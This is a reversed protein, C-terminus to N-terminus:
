SSAEENYNNNNKKKDIRNVQQRNGTHQVEQEQARCRSNELSAQAQSDDGIASARLLMVGRTTPSQIVEGQGESLFEAPNADPGVLTVEVNKGARFSQERQNSIGAFNDTNMQYLQMSWYREPVSASITVPGQELNYICSAYLLDPSPRVVDRSTEDPRSRMAIQNYGVREVGKSYLREMIMNPVLMALPYQGLWGCVLIAATWRLWSM